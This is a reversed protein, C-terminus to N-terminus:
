IELVSILKRMELKQGPDLNIGKVKTAGVAAKERM